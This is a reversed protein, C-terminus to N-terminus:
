TDPASSSSLEPSFDKYAHWSAHAIWPFSVAIGILFTISGAIMMFAILWAWSLMVFPQALVAKVSATLASVADVDQDVLMPFALASIAFAGGALLGGFATGVALLALGEPQVLLYEVFPGPQMPIDPAILVLLFQAIRLWSLLLVLLLISLFGIQGLRTPFRSIILRFRPEEGRERARSIQYIGIALAPAILAFGSLAVPVLALMDVSWLGLSLIAGFGAFILGYSLSLIPDRVLDRWGLRLWTWPADRAVKAIRVM